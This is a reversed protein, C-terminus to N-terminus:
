EEYEEGIAIFNEDYIKLSSNPELIVSGTIINSTSITTNIKIKSPNELEYTGNLDHLNLIVASTITPEKPFFLIFLIIIVLFIYWYREIALKLKM